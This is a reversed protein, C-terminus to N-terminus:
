PSRHQAPDGRGHFVQERQDCCQETRREGEESAAALLRDHLKGKALLQSNVGLPVPGPKSLEIPGEPNCDMPEPGAPPFGQNDDLRLRHDPPVALSEPNIPPPDRLPTGASWAERGFHLFQNRPEGHLIGPSCPFDLRFELLETERHAEGRDRSVEGLSEGPARLQLAPPGEKPIMSIGNRRHVEKRDRGNAESHQIHPENQSVSTPLEHVEVDRRIGRCQPDNLLEALGRRLRGCGRIEYVVAVRDERPSNPLGKAAKACLGHPGGISAGPLVPDGFSPDASTAAFQQVVDNDEIFPMQMSPKTFVDGVVVSFANMRPQSIRRM